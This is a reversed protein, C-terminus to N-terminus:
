ATKKQDLNVSIKNSEPSCNLGTVRGRHCNYFKGKGKHPKWVAYDVMNSIEFGYLQAFRAQYRFCRSSFGRVLTTFFIIIRALIDDNPKILNAQRVDLLETKVRSSLIQRAARLSGASIEEPKSISGYM